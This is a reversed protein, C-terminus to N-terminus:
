TGAKLVVGINEPYFTPGAGLNYVFNFAGRDEDMGFGPSQIGAHHLTFYNLDGETRGAVRRQFAADLRTEKVEIAKIFRDETLGPRETRGRHASLGVASEGTGVASPR